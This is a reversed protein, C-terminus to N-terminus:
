GEPPREAERALGLEDLKGCAFTEGTACASRLLATGRAGDMSVGRGSRLYLGATTCAPPHGLSCAREFLGFAKEDDHPVQEGRAYMVALENCSRPDGLDCAHAYSRLTTALGPSMASTGTTNAPMAVGQSRPSSDPELEIVYELLHRKGNFFVPVIGLLVSEVAIAVWDWRQKLSPSTTKYGPAEVRVGYDAWPAFGDDMEVTVPATGLRENLDDYSRTLYVTGGPPETRIVSMTSCGVLATSALAGCLVYRHM